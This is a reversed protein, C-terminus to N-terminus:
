PHSRVIDATSSRGIYLWSFKQQSSEGRENQALAFRQWFKGAGGQRRGDSNRRGGAQKPSKQDAPGAGGMEVEEWQTKMRLGVPGQIRGPARQRKMWVTSFRARRWRRAGVAAGDWRPTGLRRTGPRTAMGSGRWWTPGM